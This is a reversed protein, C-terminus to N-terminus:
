IVGRLKEYENKARALKELKAKELERKESVADFTRRASIQTADYAPIDVASVDFLRDIKTITRLTFDDNELYNNEKVTFAFSMKDILGSKIDRALQQHGEDEPMLTARMHLGDKKTEIKLSNNRTRAYVRGGHNYNFIVDNTDAENFADASIKERLEWDSGKYLVTENDFVCPVGELVLEEKDEENKRTEINTLKFDRFEAQKSEMLRQINDVEKSM